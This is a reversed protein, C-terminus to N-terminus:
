QTERGLRIVSMKSNDVEFTRRLPAPARNDFHLNNVGPQGLAVRRRRNPRRPSRLPGRPADRPCEHATYHWEQAMSAEELPGRPATKPRTSAVNRVRRPRTPIEEASAPLIRADGCFARNRVNGTKCLMTNCQTANSQKPDNNCQMAVRQM